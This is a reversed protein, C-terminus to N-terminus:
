VGMKSILYDRARTRESPKGMIRLSTEHCLNVFRAHDGLNEAGLFVDRLRNLKSVRDGEPESFADRLMNDVCEEM